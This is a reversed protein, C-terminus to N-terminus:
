KRSIGSRSGTFAHKSVFRPADFYSPLILLGDRAFQSAHSAFSPQFHSLWEQRFGESAAFTKIFDRTGPPADDVTAYYRSEPGGIQRPHIFTSLLVRQWSPASLLAIPLVPPEAAKQADECKADALFQRHIRKAQIVEFQDDHLFEKYVKLAEELLSLTHRTPGLIQAQRIQSRAVDLHNRNGYFKEKKRIADQIEVRALDPEQMVSYLNALGHQSYAMSAENFMDPHLKKLKLAEKMFGLARDYRGHRRELNGALHLLDAQLTAGVPCLRQATALHAEAEELDNELVESYVSRLATLRIAM